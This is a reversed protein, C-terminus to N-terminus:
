NAFRRKFLTMAIAFTGIAYALLVAIHLLANQPLKGLLLPRILDVAHSMPLCYSVTQLAAPLESMPFFVGSLMALPMIGLSFWYSFFEYGNAVSTMILAIGAFVLGTLLAIPLVFVLTWERSVGLLVLATVFAVCSLVSKSAAFVWEAFVVDRLSMPANLVADWTRQIQMRAFASYMGEFTAGNVISFALTGSAVFMIYTMGGLEPVLRGLGYGLGLMYIFPEGVAFMLSSLWFKKWALFNRRWYPIFRTFSFDSM